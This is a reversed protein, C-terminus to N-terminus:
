PRGLYTPTTVNDLPFFSSKQISVGMNQNSDKKGQSTITNFQNPLPQRSQINCSQLVVTANGFIFDITGMIDCERYFQYNSQAYLTVQFANLSCRYLMSLDFGSWFSVAQHKAADATNLFGM